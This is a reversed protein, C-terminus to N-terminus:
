AKLATLMERKKGFGPKKTLEFGASSLGDRVIRAVTFTAATGQSATLEGVRKLVKESWMDPNKSPAFGDLFWANAGFSQQALVEEVDGIHINLEINGFDIKIRSQPADPYVTLLQNTLSELDPWGTLAQAMAKKDLPFKEVSHYIM